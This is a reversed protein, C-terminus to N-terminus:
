YPALSSMHRKGSISPSNAGVAQNWELSWTESKRAPRRQLTTKAKYCGDMWIWTDTYWDRAHWLVAEGRM